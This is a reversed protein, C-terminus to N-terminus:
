DDMGLAAVAELIADAVAPAEGGSSATDWSDPSWIEIYNGAGVFVANQAIDAHERHRESLLIRGAKDVPCRSASSFLARPNIRAESLKRRLKAMERRPFAWLCPESPSRTVLLLEEDYDGRLVDRMDSPVSVRGKSDVAHTFQDIFM